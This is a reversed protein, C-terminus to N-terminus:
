ADLTEHPKLIKKPIAFIPRSCYHNSNFINAQSSRKATFPEFVPLGHALLLPWVNFSCAVPSFQNKNLRVVAMELVRRVLAMRDDQLQPANWRM